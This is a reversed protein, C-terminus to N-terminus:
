RAHSAEPSSTPPERLLPSPQVLELAGRRFRRPHSRRHLGDIAGASPDRAVSAVGSLVLLGRGAAQEDLAALRRRLGLAVVTTIAASIALAAPLSGTLGAAATFVSVACVFGVFVAVIAKAPSM